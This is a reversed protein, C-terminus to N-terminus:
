KDDQTYILLEGRGAIVFDDLGNGTFDRALLPRDSISLEADPFPVVLRGYGDYFGAVAPTSVLLALDRDPAWRVCCDYGNQNDPEANWLKEGSGTFLARAGSNGWLCGVLLQKGPLDPRYRGATLAQAHGVERIARVNGHMDLLYFGANGATLAIEVGNSEDGDFEGIRIHDVHDHSHVLREADVRWMEKGDHDFMVFGCLIEDKGDGDIDYIGLDHGHECNGWWELELKDNIIWFATYMDMVAIDRGAGLGRVNAQYMKYAPIYPSHDERGGRNGLRNCPPTPAENKVEGTEADIARIMPGDFVVVERRGDGDLDWIQYRAGGVVPRTWRVNGDLDTAVMASADREAYKWDDTIVVVGALKGDLTIDPQASWARGGKAPHPIRKWLVPKSLGEASAAIAKKESSIFAAMEAAGDEDTTARLSGYRCLTTTYVAMRGHRFTSDTVDFLSEGDMRCTIRDGKCEVNFRYYRYPDIEMDRQALPIWNSEDRRYLVVKNLSELFLGYTQRYSVYRFMVGSRAINCFMQDMSTDGQPLMQRVEFDLKFDGWTGDGARLCSTFATSHELVKRGRDNTVCWEWGLGHLWTALSWDGFPALRRAEGATSFIGGEPASEIPLEVLLQEPM